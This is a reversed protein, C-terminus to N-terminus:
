GKPSGKVRFAVVGKKNGAMMQAQYTITRGNTVEQVHTGVGTQWLTPLLSWARAVVEKPPPIDAEWGGPFDPLGPTVAQMPTQTQTTAPTAPTTPIVQATPTTPAAPTTIVQANPTVVKAAEPANSTEAKKGFALKLLEFLIFGDLTTLTV